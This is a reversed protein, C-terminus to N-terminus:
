AGCCKKYKKGSGCSCPDNRGVKPEERVVPAQPSHHHHHGHGDEHVHHDGDVFYWREGIKRFKSVEHHELTKGNAKYKANFEVKNGEASIIELGLWESKMWERVERENFQSRVEPALTERLYNVAGKVHASYRSRM